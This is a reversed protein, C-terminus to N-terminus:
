FLSRGLALGAFVAAISVVLSALVYVASLGLTGREFLSVADLSFSSFTTFGGLVGTVLFLRMEMSANLRRAVLEVLFGIMFSGAVNVALTGWPFNAGALRVSWVGVLYRFVSGIAGGAAVLAINIM